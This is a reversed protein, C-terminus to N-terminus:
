AYVKRMVAYTTLVRFGLKGIELNFVHYNIASIHTYGKKIGKGILENFEFFSNIVGLGLNKYQPHVGGLLFLVENNGILKHTKFGLTQQTKPDYLRYVSENDAYFSKMVYGKYREGSVHKPVLPDRTFRDHVITTGAIELVEQLKDMTSVEDFQYGYRSTDYPKNLNISSEIQLEVLNFQHKELSHVNDIHEIPIKCYVYAPNYEQIYNNEFEAFNEDPSFDHLSLVNRGFARSDIEILEAYM